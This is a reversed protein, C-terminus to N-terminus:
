GFVDGRTGLLSYFFVYISLLPPFRSLLSSLSLLVFLLSFNCLPNMRVSTRIVPPLSQLFAITSVSFPLFLLIVPYPHLVYFSLLILSFTLFFVPPCYPLFYLPLTIGPKTENLAIRSQRYLELKRSGPVLLRQATLKVNM